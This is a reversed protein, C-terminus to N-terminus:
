LPLAFTFTTGNGASSTFGVKGGLCEEGFLKMSYTGLGHGNGAKSTFYKQFIHLQIDDPIVAENWVQWEIGSKRILTRFIVHGGERTADLANHIMNILVRSALMADTKITLNGSLDVETITKGDVTKNVPITNFVLNRINRISTETANTIVEMNEQHSLKSQMKVEHCVSDAMFKQRYLLANDPMHSHIYESYSQLSCLMNNLDHFFVRELSARFQQRSVDQASVLIWRNGDVVLPQARVQLCVDSQRGNKIITVACLRECMKNEEIAAMMAIVTGCSACYPTTGCGGPEDFAYRCHITEGLRLGLVREPDAIGFNEQFPKNLAVIQRAENVIMMQGPSFQLLTEL